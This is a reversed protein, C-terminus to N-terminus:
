FTIGARTLLGLAALKIGRLTTPDVLRAKARTQEHFRAYSAVTTPDEVRATLERARGMSSTTLNMSGVSMVDDDVLWTKAHLVDPYEWIEVGAEIMDRYLTQGLQIQKSDNGNDISTLLLKVDVGRRAAAALAKAAIPSTIYTTSAWLREKAAGADRLFGETSALDIGPRNALLTVAARADSLAGPSAVAGARLQAVGRGADLLAARSRELRAELQPDSGALSRHSALADASALAAAPGEIRLMMDTWDDYKSGLGLGGTYAIRDDITFLKRHEFDSGRLRLGATRVFRVGAAEMRRQFADAVDRGRERIGLGDVLIRVDLGQRAKRELLDAVRAGSGDPEWNYQTATISTTAQELDAYLRPLYQENRILLDVANGETRPSRPLMAEGARAGDVFLNSLTALAAGARARLPSNAAIAATWTTGNALDALARTAARTRGGLSRVSRDVDDEVAAPLAPAASLLLSRAGDIGRPSEDRLEPLGLEARAAMFLAPIEM